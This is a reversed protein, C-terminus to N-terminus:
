SSSGRLGSPAAACGEAPCERPSAGLHALCPTGRRLARTLTWLEFPTVRMLRSFRSSMSTGRVLGRALRALRGLRARRTGSANWSRPSLSPRSTSTGRLHFRAAPSGQMLHRACPPQTPPAFPRDVDLSERCRAALDVLPEAFTLSTIPSELDFSWRLTEHENRAATFDRARAVALDLDVAGATPSADVAVAQDAGREVVEAFLPESARAVPPDHEVARLV